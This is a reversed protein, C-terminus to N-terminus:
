MKLIPVPGIPCAKHAPQHGWLPSLCLSLDTPVSSLTIIVPRRLRSRNCSGPCFEAVTPFALTRRRSPVRSEGSARSLPQCGGTDTQGQHAHESWLSGPIAEEDKEGSSLTVVGWLQTHAGVAGELPSLKPLALAGRRRTGPSEPKSQTTRPRPQLGSFGALRRHPGPNRSRVSSEPLWAVVSKEYGAPVVGCMIFKDSSSASSGCRWM